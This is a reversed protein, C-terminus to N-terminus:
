AKTLLINVGRTPKEYTGGTVETISGTLKGGRDIHRAMEEALEENLYGIQVEATFFILARAKIWVAVANADYPNSPERKLILPM